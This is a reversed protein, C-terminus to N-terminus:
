ALSSRQLYAACEAAPVPKSFFYGQYEHCGSDRLYDLQGQTEVGEAILELGLNTALGIIARVIVMDSADTPVDRVFTRDIKLKNLPFMKLYSLSSYGTGFDDIALQVGLESLENLMAAVTDPEDMLASETVELELLHPPIGTEKLLASVREVLDRQRFQRASLNVAMRVELGADLWEKLQRCAKAIVWDGLPIILGSAEAVPIFRVPSVNGLEADHWRLLAEVGRVKGTVLDVQPQYYLELEDRELAQRLRTHLLLNEQARDNLEATFFRICRRGEAKAHYMAADADALLEDVTKGDAPFLSVGLSFGVQVERNNLLLPADFPSFLKEAITTVDHVQTVAPLIIAFEDGGLRAVTDGARLCSALRQAVEQLLLDGFDHGLSDNVVKFHDLDLLMVALMQNERRAVVLEQDLRDRFLSRNPLGTLTDHTALHRLDDELKRWPSVDRIFAVAQQGEAVDELISTTIDLPILSGDKRLGELRPKALMGRQEPVQFFKVRDHHHRERYAEPLLMDLNKGLLEERSYGFLRELCQNIMLIRGHRDAVLIADPASELLAGYREASKQLEAQTDNLREIPARVSELFMARYLFGYMIIKYFHGIANAPSGSHQYFLFFLDSLLAFLVAQALMTMSASHLIERRKQFLLALTILDLVIFIGQVGLKFATPGEGEIFTRPLWAPAILVLALVLLVLTLNAGLLRVRLHKSIRTAAPMAVYALLAGAAVLRSALWFGLAKDTSNATVFAPMGAYSLLHALEFLAVSLFACALVLSAGARKRDHIHWGTMFTASAVVVAFTELVAHLFLLNGMEVYQRPGSWAVWAMLPLALLMLVLGTQNWPRRPLGAGNLELPISSM